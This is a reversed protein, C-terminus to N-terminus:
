LPIYEGCSVSICSYFFGLFFFLEIVLEPLKLLCSKLFCFFSSYHCLLKVFSDRVRFCWQLAQFQGEDIGHSLIIMRRLLCMSKLSVVLIYAFDLSLFHPLIVYFIMSLFLSFTPSSPKSNLLMKLSWTSMSMLAELLVLLSRTM